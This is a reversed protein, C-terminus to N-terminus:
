QAQDKSARTLIAEYRNVTTDIHYQTLAREHGALALRRRLDADEVMAQMGSAIAKASTVDVLMGVKGGALVWPIAGSYKGGIVPLGMAMAETVAMCQSEELSPHVLIDVKEALTTLCEMYPLPGMFRIGADLSHQRTWVNALGGNEHEAGFM